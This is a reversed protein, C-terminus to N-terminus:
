RSATNKSSIRSANILQGGWELPHLMKEVDKSERIKARELKVEKAM